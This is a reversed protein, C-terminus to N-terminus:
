GNLDINWGHDAPGILLKAKLDRLDDAPSQALPNSPWAVLDQQEINANVVLDENNNNYIM